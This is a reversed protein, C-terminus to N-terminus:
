TSCATWFRRKAFVVILFALGTVLLFSIGPNDGALSMSAALPEM